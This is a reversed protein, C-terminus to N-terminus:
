ERLSRVVSFVARCEFPPSNHLWKAFRGGAGVEPHWNRSNANQCEPMRVRRSRGRRHSPRVIETGRGTRSWDARAGPRLPSVRDDMEEADEIRVPPLGFPERRKAGTARTTGTRRAAYVTPTSM